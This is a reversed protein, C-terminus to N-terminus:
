ERVLGFFYLFVLFARNGCRFCVHLINICILVFCIYCFHVSRMRRVANTKSVNTMRQINDEVCACVGHLGPYVPPFKMPGYELVAHERNVASITCLGAKAETEVLFLAAIVDEEGGIYLAVPPGLALPCTLNSRESEFRMSAPGRAQFMTVLPPYM